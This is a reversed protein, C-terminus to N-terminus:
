KHIYAVSLYVAILFVAIATLGTASAFFGCLSGYGLREQKRYGTANMANFFAASEEPAPALLGWAM